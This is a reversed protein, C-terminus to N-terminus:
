SGQNGFTFLPKSFGAGMMTTIGVVVGRTKKDEYDEMKPKM